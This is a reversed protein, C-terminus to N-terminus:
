PRLSQNYLYSEILLGSLIAQLSPLLQTVFKNWEGIASKPIYVLDNPKIRFDATEGNLISDINVKYVKPSNLNGRIILAENGASDLRGEARTLLRALTLRSSYGFYGPQKVEGLIYVEQNISSAIYIYDQDQLQINHKMDGRKILSEFNVPLLRDGRKIYSHELDALEVTKEDFTGIALGGALGIASIANLEQNYTYVGPSKVKGIITFQNQKLKVPEVTVKPYYIYESLKDEITAETQELTHGAVYVHGILKVTMSGDRRVRTSISSLEPEGYVDISLYDGVDITFSEITPKRLLYLEEELDAQAQDM